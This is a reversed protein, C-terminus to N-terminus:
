RSARFAAVSFSGNSLFERQARVKRASLRGSSSFEMEGLEGSVTRPMHITLTSAEPSSKRDSILQLARVSDMGLLGSFERPPVETEVTKAKNEHFKCQGRLNIVVSEPYEM